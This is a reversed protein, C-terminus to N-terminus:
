AKLRMMEENYFGKIRSVLLDFFDYIKKPFKEVFYTFKRPNKGKEFYPKIKKTFEEFKERIFNDNKEM